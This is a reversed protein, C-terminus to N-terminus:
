HAGPMERLAACAHLPATFSSGPSPVNVNLDAGKQALQKAIDVIDRRGFAEGLDVTSKPVLDVDPAGLQRFDRALEDCGAVLSVLLPSLGGCPDPENTAHCGGVDGM